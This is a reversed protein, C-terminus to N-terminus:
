KKAYIRVGRLALTTERRGPTLAIRLYRAKAPTKLNITWTPQPPKSPDAQLIKRWTKGDSSIMATLGVTYRTYSDRRNEIVIRKLLEHKQLTITVYPAAERNTCFAHSRRYGHFKGEGTLFSPLPPYRTSTTSLKYSADKSVLKTNLDIPDILRLRVSHWAVQSSYTGLAFNRSRVPWSNYVTLSSQKGTWAIFKKGNLTVDIKADDDVLRVSIQVTAKEGEKIPPKRYESTVTSTNPSAASRKDIDSIGSYRGGWGGIIVSTYGSGVPLIVSMETDDLITFSLQMDYGGMATIPIDILQRSSRGCVLDGEKVTWQGDLTHKAPDILKLLDTWRPKSTVGGTRIGLKAAQAELRKLAIGARMANMDKEEHVALFQRYYASARKIATTRAAITKSKALLQEYWKGLDMCSTEPTKDVPQAALPICTRLYNDMEENLLKGAASPDDLELLELMVLQQRTESDDPTANLKAHLSKRRKLISVRAAAARLDATITAARDKDYTRALLLAQRYLISAKSTDGAATHARALVICQDIYGKAAQSRDARRAKAYRVKHISLRLTEWEVKRDPVTKVLMDVAKSAAKHGAPDKAGFSATREYILIKLEPEDALMECAKLFANALEADDKPSSTRTVKQVSEGFLTDFKEETSAAQSAGVCAGLTLCIVIMSRGNM